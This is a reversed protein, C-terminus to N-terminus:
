QDTSLPPLPHLKKALFTLANIRQDKPGAKPDDQECDWKKTNGMEKIPSIPLQIVAVIGLERRYKNVLEDVSKVFMEGLDAGGPIPFHAKWGREEWDRFRDHYPELKDLWMRAQKKALQKLRIPSILNGMGGPIENTLNRLGITQILDDEFIYAKSEDDFRQVIERKVELGAIWIDRIRQCKHSKKGKRAEAEHQYMRQGRGKGVYFPKCDRPDILQYVYFM